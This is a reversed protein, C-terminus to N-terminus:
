YVPGLNVNEDLAIGDWFVNKEVGQQDNPLDPYWAKIKYNGLPQNFSLFIALGQSNTLMSRLETGSSNYIKVRSNQQVGNGYQQHVTVSLNNLEAIKVSNIAYVRYLIAFMVVLLASIVIIKKMKIERKLHLNQIILKIVM